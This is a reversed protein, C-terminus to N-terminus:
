IESWQEKTRKNEQYLLEFITPVFGVGLLDRRNPTSSVEIM